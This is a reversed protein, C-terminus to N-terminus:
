LRHELWQECASALVQLDTNESIYQTMNEQNSEYPLETAGDLYWIPHSNHLENLFVKAKAHSLVAAFRPFGSPGGVLISAHTMYNFAVDVPDAIDSVRVNQVGLDEWAALVTQVHDDDREGDTVLTVNLCDASISSADAM